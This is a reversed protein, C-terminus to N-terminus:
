FAPDATMMTNGNKTVCFIKRYILRVRM